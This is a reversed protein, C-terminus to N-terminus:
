ASSTRARAAKPMFSRDEVARQITRIGNKMEDADRDYLKQFGKLETELVAVATVLKPVQRMDAEIADVRGELGSVADKTALRALQESFGKVEQKLAGYSVLPGIVAAAATAVSIWEGPSV